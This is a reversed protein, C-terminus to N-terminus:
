QWIKNQIAAKALNASVGPTLFPSSDGEAHFDGQYISICMCKWTFENKTEKSKNDYLCKTDYISSSKAIM